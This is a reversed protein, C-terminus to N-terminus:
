RISKGLVGLRTRLMFNRVIIPKLGAKACLNILEKNSIAEEWPWDWKDVNQLIRRGM